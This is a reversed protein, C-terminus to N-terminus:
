LAVALRAAIMAVMDFLWHGVIPALLNGGVLRLAGFLVGGIAIVALKGFFTLPQPPGDQLVVVIHWLAFALGSIIVAPQRAAQWLSPAKMGHLVHLLAGRFALEEPIATDVWLLLVARWLLPGWAVTAAPTVDAVPVGLVRAALAGGIILVASAGAAIGGVVLGLRLSSRWDGGALGLRAPEPGRLVMFALIGLVLAIGAGIGFTSGAATSQLVVLDWWSKANGYAVLVVILLAVRAVSPRAATTM